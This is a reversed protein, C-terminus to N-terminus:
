CRVKYRWRQSNGSRCRPAEIRKGFWWAGRQKLVVCTHDGLRYARKGREPDDELGIELKNLLVAPVDSAEVFYGSQWTMCMKDVQIVSMLSGATIECEREWRDCQIKEAKMQWEAGEWQNERDGNLHGLGDEDKAFRHKLANKIHKVEGGGKPRFERVERLAIAIEWDPANGCLWKIVHDPEGALCRGEVDVVTCTAKLDRIFPPFKFLTPFPPPPIRREFKRKSPPEELSSAEGVASQESKGDSNVIPSIIPCKDLSGFGATSAEKSM